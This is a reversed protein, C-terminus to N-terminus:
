KYFADPSLIDIVEDVGKKDIMMAGLVVEELDIAQPPVKGKELSIIASKDVKYGQIPNPQKM